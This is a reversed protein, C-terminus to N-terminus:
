IIKGRPQKKKFATWLTMEKAMEITLQHDTSPRGGTSETLFSAFDEGDLFGYECMRSFWHSYDSGVDLFEHLERGSIAPKGKEYNIKILENMISM